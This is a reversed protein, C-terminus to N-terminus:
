REGYYGNCYYGYYNSDKCNAKNIIVGTIKSNAQEFTRKVRELFEVKTKRNSVVVMNIDSYSLMIRTDSLGLVPPCDLIIVDYEKKLAKLILETNHSSLLEIPNPPTPGKPIVYVNEINTKNIYRALGAKGASLDYKLILNSFGLDSRNRIGFIEHQRGKRLDCDIILVKKKEQAYAAALNASVFSKGDGSEPSTNLIIKMDKDIASFALNTRITKISESFMSKPNESVILDSKMIDKERKKKM